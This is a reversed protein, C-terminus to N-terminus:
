MTILRYAIALGFSIQIKCVFNWQAYNEVLSKFFCFLFFVLEEVPWKRTGKFRMIFVLGLPLNKIILVHFDKCKTESEYHPECCSPFPRNANATITNLYDIMIIINTKSLKFGTLKSWDATNNADGPKGDADGSM